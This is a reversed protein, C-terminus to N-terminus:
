VDEDAASRMVADKMREAKAASMVPIAGGGAGDAGDGGEAAALINRQQIALACDEFTSFPCGRVPVGSAAGGAPSAPPQPPADSTEM